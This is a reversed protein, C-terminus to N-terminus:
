VEHLPLHHNNVVSSSLHGSSPLSKAVKAREVLKVSAQHHPYRSWVKAVENTAAVTSHRLVDGLGKRTKWSPTRFTSYSGAALFPAHQTDPSFRRLVLSKYSKRVNGQLVAAFPPYCETLHLTCRLCRRLNRSPPMQFPHLLFLPLATKEFCQM